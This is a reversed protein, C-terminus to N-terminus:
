KLDNLDTLAYIRTSRLAGSVSREDNKMIGELTYGCREAVAASKLNVDDCCIEIRAAGLKEFALTSLGRVVETVYGKGVESTRCWYGLEFRPVEWNIRHLGSGVVFRGTARDFVHMRLDERTIYKAIGQRINSECSELSYNETAWPMWPKLETLSERVADYVLPVDALEPCRILLRETEIANPVDPLKPM